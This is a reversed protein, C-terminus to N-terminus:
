NHGLIRIESGIAFDGSQGNIYDIRTIADSTNNWTGAGELRNPATGSTPHNSGVFNLGKIQTAINTIHIVVRAITTSVGGNASISTQGTATTDAGGNVAIRSAYNSGSDNNFRLIGDINGSGILTVLVLLYKRVPLSTVSITDGASGLTTKGIEEWWIGGNSGTSAWDVKAATVADDLIKPTTVADNVIQTTNVTNAKLTGDDEHSVDLLDAVNNAYNTTPRIIVIDGVESGGDTYGPAIEDIEINGSDIHGTFDVATAEDIVTIIESTIPDTFTHPTGMSAEFGGENWGLVTDVVITSALPARSSQVTAMAANDTGDSGKIREISPNM